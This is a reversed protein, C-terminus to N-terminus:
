SKRWRRYHLFDCFLPPLFYLKDLLYKYAIKVKKIKSFDNTKQFPSRDIM